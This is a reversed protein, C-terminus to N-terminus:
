GESVHIGDRGNEKVHYLAKDAEDFLESFTKGQDPCIAIGISLSVTSAYKERRVKKKLSASLKQCCSIASEADSINKVYVIFEDGGFRGCIDKGKFNDRIEAGIQELVRDGTAHGYTDNIKKFKDVDILLLASKEDATQAHLAMRIAEEATIKNLLGTLLDLQSKSELEKKLLQYDTVDNILGIIGNVNGNGDFVPRKILELYEVGNESKEEIIYSTGEGTEVIKKDAEMALRANEKDTRIELDTKGRITWDSDAGNDLHHWYHTAFIYRGESDKLYINSPLQKLMSEIEAFTASDKSRVANNIRLLVLEDPAPLPIYENMGEKICISAEEDSPELTLTVSPLAAFRTDNIIKKHMAFDYEIARKADIVVCAVKERPGYVLRIMDDTDKAVIVDYATSMLETFHDYEPCKPLRIIMQPKYTNRQKNDVIAM